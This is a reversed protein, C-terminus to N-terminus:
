PTIFSWVGFGLDWDFGLSWLEFDWIWALIAASNAGKQSKTM